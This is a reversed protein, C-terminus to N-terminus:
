MVFHGISLEFQVKFPFLFDLKDQGVVAVHVKESYSTM